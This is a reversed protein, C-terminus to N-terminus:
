LPMVQWVPLTADIAVTDLKKAKGDADISFRHVGATPRQDKDVSADPVLLIHRRPNYTGDGLVFRGEAAFLLTQEGSAV